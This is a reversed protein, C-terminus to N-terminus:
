GQCALPDQQLGFLTTSACSVMHAGDWCFFSYRTVGFRLDWLPLARLIQDSRSGILGEHATITAGSTQARSLNTWARYHPMHVSASAACDVPLPVPLPPACCPCESAHVSCLAGDSCGYWFCWYGWKLDQCSAATVCEVSDALMWKHFPLSTNLTQQLTVHLRTVLSNVVSAILLFRCSLM